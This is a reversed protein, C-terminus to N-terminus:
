YKRRKPATIKTFGYRSVKEWFEDWRGATKVMTRLSLVEAAGKSDWRMGSGCLRAKVVCKCAAETVGSGLPLGMAGYFNYKMKDANNAFYSVAKQLSERDAKRRVGKQLAGQMEHLLKAASDSDHKLQHCAAEAWARQGAEGVAMAVCADNLYEAAHWFDIVQWTTNQELWPWHDHAGDAVGAYRAQPYVEKLAAVERDMREFFTKKGREPAAAVYITHLRQGEEDYLALTGVMVERWGGGKTMLACTGDVGVSVTKVCKGPPAEPVEYTWLREKEAAVLAVDSGLERLYSRTTQRGHEAFDKVAAGSDTNAYKVAAQRAFLPTATRLVRADQEMPCFTRGGDSGQYVHRAVSVEGYPTQYNKPLKGKSTIKRGGVLLASGDSDFRSLCEGTAENLAANAAAQLHRESELMSAGPRFTFKVTISGDSNPTIVSM